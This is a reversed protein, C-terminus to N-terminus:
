HTRASVGFYLDVGRREATKRLALVEGADCSAAVVPSTTTVIWQVLPLARRLASALGNLVAEDQHLDVEDIVCVGEADLPNRAPYAAWLARVTLAAFAVLHRARTPIADFRVPVGDADGFRPELSRPEVGLYKFGALGVLEDVAHAVAGALAGFERQAETGETLAGTIAAYALTQKTERALDSRSADDFASAARVDYRAVSRL